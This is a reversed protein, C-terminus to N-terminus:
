AGDSAAGDVRGPVRSADASRAHYLLGGRQGLLQEGVRDGRPQGYTERRHCWFRGPRRRDPRVRGAMWVTPWSKVPHTAKSSSCTVMSHGLLSIPGRARQGIRRRGPEAAECTTTVHGARPWTRLLRAIGASLKTLLQRLLSPTVDLLEMALDCGGDRPDTSLFRDVMSLDSM